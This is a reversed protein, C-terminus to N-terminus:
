PADQVEPPIPILTIVHTGVTALAFDTQNDVAVSVYRANISVDASAIVEDGATTTQVKGIVLPIGMNTLAAATGAADTAAVDGDINAAVSHATAIYANVTQGPVQTGAAFGDIFMEMRYLSPQSGEGRDWQASVRSDGSPLASLTIVTDGTDNFTRATEFATYLKNTM